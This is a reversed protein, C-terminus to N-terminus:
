AYLHLLILALFVDIFCKSQPVYSKVGSLSYM